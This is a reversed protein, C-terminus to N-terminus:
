LGSAVFYLYASTTTPKHAHIKPAGTFLQLAPVGREPGPIDPYLNRTQPKREGLSASDEEGAFEAGWGRMVPGLGSAWSSRATEVSSVQLGERQPRVMGEEPRPARVEPTVRSSM